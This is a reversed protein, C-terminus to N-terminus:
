WPENESKERAGNVPRAAPLPEAPARPLTRPQRMPTRSPGYPRRRHAGEAVYSPWRDRLCVMWDGMKAVTRGTSPRGPQKRRPDTPRRGYAYAGAYAPHHLMNTLTVRNPRHWELEGKNVGSVARVPIRVDHDVLYRLVGHITGRTEFQEFVNSYAFPLGSPM